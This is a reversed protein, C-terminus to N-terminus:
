GVCGGSKSCEHQCCDTREQLVFGFGYHWERDCAWRRLWCERQIEISFSPELKRRRQRHSRHRRLPYHHLSVFSRRRWHEACPRPLPNSLYHAAPSGLLLSLHKELALHPIRDTSYCFCAGLIRKLHRRESYNFHNLCDRRILGFLCEMYPKQWPSEPATLAEAICLSELRRRVESRCVVDRDLQRVSVSGLRCRGLM